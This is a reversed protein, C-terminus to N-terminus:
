ATVKKKTKNFTLVIGRLYKNINKELEHEWIRIVKWGKKKLELDVFKDRKVNSNIKKLWFIRNTQPSSFCKPCKHWFCGDIFIAIKKKSFVIDPKGLLKYHLRYGRIKAESLARRLFLEPLTDKGRVRSMCYSRQKKTLVDAM